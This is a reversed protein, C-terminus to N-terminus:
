KRNDEKDLKYPPLAAALHPAAAGTYHDAGTPRQNTTLFCSTVRYNM